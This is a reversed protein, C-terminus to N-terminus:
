SQPVDFDLPADPDSPASEIDTEALDPLAQSDESPSEDKPTYAKVILGNQQFGIVEVEVGSDIVKGRSECHFREGAIRVLGAPNLIAETTGRRGILQEMRDDRDAYATVEDRTPANLLIRNGLRTNQMLYLALAITCPILVVVAGVFSRFLWPSTTGWAKWAMWTAVALTILAIVGIMGGSPVFFEIVLLALGAALLLIAFLAPDM